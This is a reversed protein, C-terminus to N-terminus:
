IVNQAAQGVLTLADIKVGLKYTFVIDALVILALIIVVILIIKLLKDELHPATLARVYLNEFKVADYGPVTKMDPTIICNKEDDVDITKVGYAHDIFGRNPCAIRRKQKQSDKFVLWGEIIEGPKFYSGTVCHIRILSLRGRSMKVRAFPILFGGSLWNLVGFIMLIPYFFIEM